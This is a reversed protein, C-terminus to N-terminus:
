PMGEGHNFTYGCAIGRGRLNPYSYAWNAKLVLAAEWQRGDRSVAINLPRGEGHNYILSPAFHRRAIPGQTPDPRADDREM